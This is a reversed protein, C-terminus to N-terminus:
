LDAQLVATTSLPGLINGEIPHLSCSGYYGSKYQYFKHELYETHIYIVPFCTCSYEDFCQLVSVRCCQSVASKNEHCVSKASGDKLVLLAICERPKTCFIMIRKTFLNFFQTMQYMNMLVLIFRKTVTLVYILTVMIFSM